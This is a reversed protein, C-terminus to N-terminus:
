NLQVQIYQIVRYILCDYCRRPFAVGYAYTLSGNIPVSALDCVKGM